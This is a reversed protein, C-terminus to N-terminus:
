LTVYYIMNKVDYSINQFQEMVSSCNYNCKHVAPSNIADATGTLYKLSASSQLSNATTDLVLVTCVVNFSKVKIFHFTQTWCMYHNHGKPWVSRDNRERDRWRTVIFTKANEWQCEDVKGQSLPTGNIRTGQGKTQGCKFLTIENWLAGMGRGVVCVCKNKTVNIQSQGRKTKSGSM